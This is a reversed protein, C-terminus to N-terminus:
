KAPGSVPELLQWLLAVDQLRKTRVFAGFIDAETVRMTAGQWDIEVDGTKSSLLVSTLADIKAHDTFGVKMHTFGSRENLTDLYRRATETLTIPRRKDEVLVLKPIDSVSIDCLRRLAITSKYTSVEIIVAVGTPGEDSLVTIQTGHRGLEVKDLGFDPRPVAARLLPRLLGVLNSANAPLKLPSHKRVAFASARKAEVAADIRKELTAMDVEHDEDESAGRGGHLWNVIGVEAVRDAEDNWAARAWRIMQRPRVRLADGIKRDFYSKQLPFYPEAEVAAAIEALGLSPRQFNELRSLIIRHALEPKLGRLVVEDQAVRDWNAVTIVDKERLARVNETVGSLICVLNPIQDLIAHYFRTTAQIQEESLNDFQDVCIIFPRGSFSSLEAIVRFVEKIDQDDRLGEQVDSNDQLGLLGSMEGDLTEGSLWSVGAELVRQNFNEHELHARHMNLGVKLLVLRIARDLVDATDAVEKIAQEANDVTIPADAPLKSATRVAAQWLEYLQCDGYSDTRRGGSLAGISAALLYRPLRDPAVLINYLFVATAGPKENAAWRALRALLHSKGVGADGQIMIGRSSREDAVKLINRCLRDFPRQHVERVDLEFGRGEEGVRDSDFPAQNLLRKEFEELTM